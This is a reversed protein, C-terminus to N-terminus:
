SAKSFVFINKKHNRAETLAPVGMLLTDDVFKKHTSAIFTDHLKLGILQNNDKSALITRGFGVEM